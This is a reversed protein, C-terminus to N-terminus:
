FMHFLVNEYKGWLAWTNGAQIGFKVVEPFVIRVNSKGANYTKSEYIFAIGKYYANVQNHLCYEAKHCIERAEESTLKRTIKLASSFRKEIYGQRELYEIIRILSSEHIYQLKVPNEPEQNFCALLEDSINYIYNLDDYCECDIAYGITINEDEKDFFIVRSNRLLIEKIDNIIESKIGAQKAIYKESIKM